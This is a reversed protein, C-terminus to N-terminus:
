NQFVSFGFNELDQIMTDYLDDYKLVDVYWM